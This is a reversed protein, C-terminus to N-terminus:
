STPRHRGVARRYDSVRSKAALRLAQTGLETEAFGAAIAALAAVTEPSPKRLRPTRLLWRRTIVLTGLWALIEPNRCAGAARIVRVRHDTTLSPDAYRSVALRAAALPCDRTLAHLGLNLIRLDADRLAVELAHERTADSRLLFRIAERRVVVDTHSAFQMPDAQPPWADLRDFVLVLHRLMRPTASHLAVGLPELADWGIRAILEVLTVSQADSRRELASLLADLARVKMRDVAQELVSVDLHDQALAERLAAENLVRDILTERAASVGYHQLRDLVSAIGDRAALRAVAAEAGAGVCQTEIAVDVVREPEVVDHRRDPLRHIGSTAADDLVREYMEPNPNELSWGDLLRRVATRLGREVEAGGAGRLETRTSLKRLLRLMAGSIPVARTSSVARLLEVVAATGLVDNAARVRRAGREAGGAGVLRTLTTESLGAILASLRERQGAPIANGRVSLDDLIDTLREIMARDFAVDGCGADIAAAIARPDLAEGDIADDRMAAAALAQWTAREESRAPPADGGALLGLREFAVAHVKLHPSGSDPLAAPARAGDDPPRAIAALFAELEDRTVGPLFRVAGVQHGALRAAFDALLPHEHDGTLGNVVLRRDAVGIALEGEEPLLAGLRNHVAEAAGRLIPHGPPYISRKHVAVALEVLFEHLGRPLSVRAPPSPTDTTM